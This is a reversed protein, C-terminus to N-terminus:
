PMSILYSYVDCVLRPCLHQLIIVFLNLGFIVGDDFLGPFGGSQCRERRNGIGLPEM